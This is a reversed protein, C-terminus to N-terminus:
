KEQPDHTHKVESTFEGRALRTTVTDGIKVDGAARVIRGDARRAISYGRELVALPNYAAVQRELGHLREARTTVRMWTMPLSPVSSRPVRLKLTEVVPLMTACLMPGTFLTASTAPPAPPM